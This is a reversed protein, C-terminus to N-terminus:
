LFPYIAKMESAFIFKEKIKAYFLPKKGFRDKSLFLEKKVADWIAFAWMGNLKLVCRDKWEIYANLLVETDSNTSFKYGRKELDERVEIFNYIEGNFVISYRKTDDFMPQNGYGIDIISLRRHGLMVERNISEIGFCDPGRHSLTSLASKFLNYNVSPITGLIGCM